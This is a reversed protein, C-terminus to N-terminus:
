KHMVTTYVTILGPGLLIVFIAPFILGIMPILIKVPAKLAKKEAVQRRKARIQASQLQLINTISVGLQDAQIIASALSNLDEVGSRMGFDKLAERKTKGVRMDQLLRTYEEVIPGNFKDIVRLLAADFGLGAEVCVTLVDMTDPLALFIKKQRSAIAKSLYTDFGVWALCGAIVMLLIRSSAQISSAKLIFLPLISSLGSVVWRIGIFEGAQLGYPNGALLLKRRIVDKAASSSMRSMLHILSLANDKLALVIGKPKIEAPVQGNKPGTAGVTMLRHKVQLKDLIAQGFILVATTTAAMAIISILTAYM